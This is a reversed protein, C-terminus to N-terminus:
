KNPLLLIFFFSCCFFSSFRLLLFPSFSLIFFFLLSSSTYYKVWVSPVTCVVGRSKFFLLSIFLLQTENQKRTKKNEQKRTKAKQLNWVHVCAYSLFQRYLKINCPNISVSNYYARKQLPPWPTGQM